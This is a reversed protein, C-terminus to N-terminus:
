AQAFVLSVRYPRLHVSWDLRYSERSVEGVDLWTFYRGVQQARDPRVTPQM